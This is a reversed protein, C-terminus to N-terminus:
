WCDTPNVQFICQMIAHGTTQLACTTDQFKGPQLQDTEKSKSASSASSVSAWIMHSLYKSYFQAQGKSATNIRRHRLQVHLKVHQLEETGRAYWAQNTSYLVKNKAWEQLTHRGKSHNQVVWCLGRRNVIWGSTTRHQEIHARFTRTNFAKSPNFPRGVNPLTKTLRLATSM